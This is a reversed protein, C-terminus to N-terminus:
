RAIFVSSRRIARRRLLARESLTAFVVHSFLITTGNAKRCFRVQFCESLRKWGPLVYLLPSFPDLSAYHKVYKAELEASLGSFCVWDVSETQKNFVICAAGEVGLADTLLKMAEPWADPAIGAEQIKSVARILEKAM